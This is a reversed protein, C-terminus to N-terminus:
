HAIILKFKLLNILNKVANKLDKLKKENGYIDFYIDNYWTMSIFIHHVSKDALITDLNKNLKEDSVKFLFDRIKQTQLYIM